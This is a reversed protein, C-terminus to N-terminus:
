IDRRTTLFLYEARQALNRRRSKRLSFETRIKDPERLTPVYTGINALIILGIVVFPTSKGLLNYTFAGFSYGVLVGFAESSLIIGM